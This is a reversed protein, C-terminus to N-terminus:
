LACFSRFNVHYQTRPPASFARQEAFKMLLQFLQRFQGKESVRGHELDERFQSVIKYM